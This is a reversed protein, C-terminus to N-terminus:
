CWRPTTPQSRTPSRSCCCPRAPVRRRPRAAVKGKPPAPELYPYYPLPTDFSIRITEATTRGRDRASPEYRMAVYFFGLKVYHALWADTEPTTVFGNQALWTALGNADSASLVFATFKGVKTVDLVEVSAGSAGDGSVIGAVRGSNRPPRRFPFEERLTPFPSKKVKAVEPRAPTPVVFGFPERSARFVVERVFHERRKAADFLILTQEYALSPRRESEAVARGGFVEACARADPTRAGIVGLGAAFLVARAWIRAAPDIMWPMTGAGRM